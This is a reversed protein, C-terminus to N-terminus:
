RELIEVTVESGDRLGLRERLNVPAIVELLDAPYDPVIPVVIAGDVRDDIRSRYCKGRHYREDLPEIPIGERGDLLSHYRRSTEEDMRVNLTGLYPDFGLKELIQERVWGMGIFRSGVGIGTVIQGKVVMSMDGDIV